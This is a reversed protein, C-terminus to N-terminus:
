EPTLTARHKLIQMEMEVMRLKEFTDMVSIRLQYMYFERKMEEDKYDKLQDM